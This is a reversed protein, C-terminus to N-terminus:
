SNLILHEKLKKNLFDIHEPINPNVKRNSKFLTFSSKDANLTLKNATFWNSLQTM